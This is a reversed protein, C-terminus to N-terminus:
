FRQWTRPVDTIMHMTSVIVGIRSLSYLTSGYLLIATVIHHIIMEVYDKRTSKGEILVGALDEVHYALQLLYLIQVTNSAVHHPYGEWILSTTHWYDPSQWYEYLGLGTVVCRFLFRFSFDSFHQISDQNQEVWKQGHAARGLRTGLQKLLPLLVYSRSLRVLVITLVLAVKYHPQTVDQFPLLNNHCSSSSELTCTDM